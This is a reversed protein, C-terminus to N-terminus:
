DTCARKAEMATDEDNPQRKVEAVEEAQEEASVIYGLRDMEERERKILEVMGAAEQPWWAPNVAAWDPGMQARCVAMLELLNKSRHYNVDKHSLNFPHYVLALRIFRIAAAVQDSGEEGAGGAQHLQQLSRRTSPKWFITIYAECLPSLPERHNRKVLNMARICSIVLLFPSSNILLRVPPSTATAAVRAASRQECPNSGAKSAEQNITKM